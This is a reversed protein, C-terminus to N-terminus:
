VGLAIFSLATAMTVPDGTAEVRVTALAQAFTAGTRLSPLAGWPVAHLRGPPIVAVPRGALEGAVPGLLREELRRAAVDFTSLADSTVRGYALRRLMFRTLELERAAASLPGIPHLRTRGDAATVAYLDGDLAPLLM